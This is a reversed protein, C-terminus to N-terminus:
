MRALVQQGKKQKKLYYGNYHTFHYSVTTKIQMERIVLSTSCRKMYNKAVQTDEKCFHRSLDKAWEQIKKNNLQLLEKM